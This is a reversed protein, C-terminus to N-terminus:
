QERWTLPTRPAGAVASDADSHEDARAHTPLLNRWGSEEWGVTQYEKLNGVSRRTWFDSLGGSLVATARATRALYRDAIADGLSALPEELNSAFPEGGGAGPTAQSTRTVLRLKSSVMPALAHNTSVSLRRM